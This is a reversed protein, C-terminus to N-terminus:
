RSTSVGRLYLNNAVLAGIVIAAGAIEVAAFSRGLAAEIGFVGIPILNLMLMSNLPGLRRAAANFGLVGLVVTGVSFYLILWGAALLTELSPVAAAGVALAIGNAVVLGVGGPICTLVTFRLPSWGPFRSASLTYTVWSVAGLFILTDGLLSGGALANALDGKTIVLVVGGIAAAVCGFTFRAPRQGYALWVALATLPTQLALIISAHEPRTYGLGIWVFLNFGTIGILGYLTAAGLREEYRLAARGEFLVLLLVLLAVGFVYRVSGLAYADLYPLTRKAVSFLPTWCLIALGIWALGAVLNSRTM